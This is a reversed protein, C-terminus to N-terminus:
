GNGNESANLHNNQEAFRLSFEGNCPNSKGQKICKVTIEMNCIFGKKPLMVNEPQLSPIASQCLLHDKRTRLIDTGEFNATPLSALVSVSTGKVCANDGLTLEDVRNKKGQQHGVIDILEPPVM